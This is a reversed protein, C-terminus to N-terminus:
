KPGLIKVGNKSNFCSRSFQQTYDMIDSILRINEGIYRGKLFATQDSHILNPLTPEIRKAIAKSAIKLDVNLLTIPRWNSLDLLSGDEKPILTILGRRQSISLEVKEHAENFSAILDNRFFNLFTPIFNSPLDTKGRHKIM